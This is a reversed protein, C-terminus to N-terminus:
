EDVKGASSHQQKMDQILSDLLSASGKELRQMEDSHLLRNMGHFLEAVAEQPKAFYDAAFPNSFLGDLQRLFRSTENFGQEREQPKELENVSQPSQLSPQSDSQFQSYTNIAVQRTERYELNMSFRTLEESDFDLRSIAKFAQQVNGSFFQDSIRAVDNLLEDIAKQEEDDLKGQVEYSLESSASINRSFSASSDDQNQSFSRTSQGSRQKSLDVLITDGDRTEIEIRTNESRAYRTEISAERIAAVKEESQQEPEEIGLIQNNLRNLGSQILDYTSDIDKKVKGNLVNLSELIDRAESFGQEIGEKAQDLLQQKKEQDEGALVRGSVFGLIRDSVKEPTFDEPQLGKLNIGKSKFREELRDAIQRNLIAQTKEPTLRALSIKDDASRLSEPLKELVQGFRHQNIFPDKGVVGPFATQM